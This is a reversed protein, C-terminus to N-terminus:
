CAGGCITTACGGGPRGRLEDLVVGGKKLGNGHCAYCYDELIPRIQQDFQEEGRDAARSADSFLIVLAFLVLIGSLGRFGCRLVDVCGSSRRIRWCMSSPNLRM